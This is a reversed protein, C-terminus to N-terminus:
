VLSSTELKEWGGRVKPPELSARVKITQTNKARQLTPQRRENGNPPGSGPGTTQRIEGDYSATQQDPANPGTQENSM